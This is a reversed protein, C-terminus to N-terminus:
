IKTLRLLSANEMRIPRLGCRALTGILDDAEFGPRDISPIGMKKVAERCLAFQPKLDDPPEPRNAKYLDYLEHRFTPEKRDFLVAVHSPDADRLVNLLLRTFGFVANTPTGDQASMPARIGYYARFIFGSGDILYLTDGAAM